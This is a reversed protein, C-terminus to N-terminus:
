EVTGQGPIPRVSAVRRPRADAARRRVLAAAYQRLEVVGPMPDDARFVDNRTAPGSPKAFDLIARWTSPTCEGLDGTRQRLRILLHDLDGLWWRSRAGVTYHSPAAVSEGLALELALFPFDVGADVALQLSGWFRGNIEMLVPRGTAHDHKYEVMAVGHWGLPGLLRMAQDALSPDLAMSESLVSVGGSPPKERLRRHEFAAILRGHDCLVFVGVGPGFIREQVLMPVCFAGRGARFLELLEPASNVYRVPASCWGDRTLTRSRVPKVVAPFRIDPLVARLGAVGDALHTRPVPVGCAIAHQVLNWKDTVFEYADLAPAAVACGPPFMDRHGAVAHVTVDTVPVVVDVDNQRVFDRVFRQFAAPERDPSPCKVRRACYRSAGALSKPTEEAVVVSIDHRGLSRTVALAARQNGDTVLATIRRMSSIGAPTM